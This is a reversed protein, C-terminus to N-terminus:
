QVAIAALIPGPLDEGNLDDQVLILQKTDSPLDDQAETGKRLNLTLPDDGSWDALKEIQVVINTYTMERGRNEGSKIKLKREPVYRLWYVDIENTPASLMVLELKTGADTQTTNTSLRVPRTRQAAILAMLQAPGPAVATDQGGIIMQPTYVAREGAAKAYAEQRATFSPDAFSDVWGLYDWYDVHLSLAMIDPQKALESLMADAPPCSSCGQSTFLEVVVPRSTVDFGTMDPPPNEGAILSNYSDGPAEQQGADAAPSVRGAQEPAAIFPTQATDPGQGGPLSQARAPELSGGSALLVAAVLLKATWPHLANLATRRSLDQQPLDLKLPM